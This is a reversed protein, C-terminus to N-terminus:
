QLVEVPTGLNVQTFLEQLDQQHMHLCGHSAAQGVTAANLTGHFGIWNNGDTWFGIWYGGLPNRPDTPSISEQTFPSIWTPNRQKQTIRFTGIPTEWGPRGVGIRYRKVVVNGEYLVAQRRSLHVELRTAARSIAPQFRQNAAFSVAPSPSQLPEIWYNSRQVPKEILFTLCALSAGVFLGM